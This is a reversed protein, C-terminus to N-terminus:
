PHTVPVQSTGANKAAAPHTLRWQAYQTLAEQPGSNYWSYGNRREATLEDVTDHISKDRDGFVPRGSAVDYYRAWIPASGPSRELHRGNPGRVYAQDRIAASELWAAAAHAAAVVEPTPNPLSMLFRLLGASEAACLAAPEYNRGSEPALTLADHQQGWATPQDHVRFQTAVICEIGRKVSAAARERLPSPTFAFDGAGSAVSQLLELTQVVAGDNFTIADHYGGELPWVQPWGGSPFQAALLYEIGRAYSARWAASEESKAQTIVRALFKLETNTADNDLTGVYNWAPDHPADFDEPRLHKSVNNSTYMEGPRRAHAALDLNKGWGGAPTQFSVM